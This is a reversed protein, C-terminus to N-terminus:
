VATLREVLAEPAAFFPSHGTDLSLVEDCPLEEYMEAQAAPTIARDALCEVYVRRVSGFGAGTTEVPVGFSGLPEPRLLSRALHVDAPPCDHYFAAEVADDPMTAYGESEDVVMEQTVVSEEDDASVDMLATGDPLLFATLYVLTDVADPRMEAAQTVVAGGMSHGVLVVPESQRDLVECVREAHDHLTLGETPTGDIGHGPLDFTVVEHGARELLPVTRYWCWAGHWAGHTLVYTSM